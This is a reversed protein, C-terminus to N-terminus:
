AATGQPTSKSGLKEVYAPPLSQLCPAPFLTGRFFGIVTPIFVLLWLSLVSFTMMCGVVKFFMSDFTTALSYTLLNLSGLPFTFAWWGMNMTIQRTIVHSGVSMVALFTWWIGLSTVLVTLAYSYREREMLLTSMTVGSAAITIPPVVPLMWASPVGFSTMVSLVLCIWWLPLALDLTWTLGYEAGLKAINNTITVFGMPLTGTFLSHTENKIMVFFIAPYLAYRLITIAIFVLFLFIDFLLWCAGAARFGAHVREFPVDFLLTCCIGTGMIVSFWSPTFRLIRLKIGRAKAAFLPHNSFTPRRGISKGTATAATGTTVTRQPRTGGELEPAPLDADM